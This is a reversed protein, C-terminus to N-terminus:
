KDTQLSFPQLKMTVVSYSLILVETFKSKTLLSSLCRGGCRKINNSKLCLIICNLTLMCIIGGHSLTVIILM